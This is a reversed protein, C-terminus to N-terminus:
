YNLAIVRDLPDVFSINVQMGLKQTFLSVGDPNENAAYFTALQAGNTHVGQTKNNVGNGRIRNGVVTIHTDPTGTRPATSGVSVGENNGFIENAVIVHPGCTTNMDNNYVAVGASNNPGLTNAAITHGVASQEIFVAEQRNDHINNGSAVCDSSFADFDLTHQWNLFLSNNVIALRIMQEIWIGRDSFSVVNNLIQGGTHTAAYTKPTGQFHIGGGETRGCGTVSIGDVIVNESETVRVAAPSATANSCTFRASSPGGPSVVGAFDTRNLEILGGWARAEAFDATPSVDVDDLVLILQPMLTLPADAVYAGNKVIIYSFIGARSNLLSSAGYANPPTLPLFFEAIVANLASFTYGITRSTSGVTLVGGDVTANLTANSLVAARSAYFACSLLFLTATSCCM